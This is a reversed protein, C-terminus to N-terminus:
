VIWSNDDIQQQSYQESADKDKLMALAFRKEFVITGHKSYVFLLLDGDDIYAEVYGNNKGINIVASKVHNDLTEADLKIM